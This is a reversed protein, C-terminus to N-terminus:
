KRRLSFHLRPKLLRTICFFSYMCLVASLSVVSISLGVWEWYSLSSNSAFATLQGQRDWWFWLFMLGTIIEILFVLPFFWRRLPAESVGLFVGSACWIVLLSWGALLLHSLILILLVLVTRHFKLRTM